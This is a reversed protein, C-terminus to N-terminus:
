GDPATFALTRWPSTPTDLLIRHPALASAYMPGFAEEDFRLVRGLVYGASFDSWSSYRRRCLLGARVVAAEAEPRDAYRAGLGWRAVSVARGFDYAAASTVYGDPPLLGDARFRAEYRLIRQILTRAESLDSQSAGRELLTAATARQWVQADPGSGPSRGEVARRVRLVFEPQPPSNRGRLLFDLQRRWQARNSAGWAERLIKTDARYDAYVDTLDNWLARRHVSLHAGCALGVALPGSLPGTYKTLLAGAEDDPEGGPLRERLALWRRRKRRAGPFFAETPTGPNVVMGRLKEGWWVYPALPLAIDCAVEGARAPTLEGRTYVALFRPGHAATYPVWAILQDDDVLQKPAYAFTPAAFLVRLYADWDQRRKAEFLAREVDTPPVWAPVPAAAGTIPTGM